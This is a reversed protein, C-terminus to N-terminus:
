PLFEKRQMKNPSKNIRYKSSSAGTITVNLNMFNSQSSKRNKKSKCRKRVRYSGSLTTEISFDEGNKILSRIRKVAERGASLDASRPDEPKLERAIQDPDVLEGLWDKMQMSLTSKGAGNTGAFVTMVSQIESMISMNKANGLLMSDSKLNIVQQMRVFVNTTRSITFPLAWNKLKNEHM